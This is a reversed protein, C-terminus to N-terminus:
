KLVMPYNILLSSIFDRCMNNTCDLRNIIHVIYDICTASHLRYLQWQLSAFVSTEEFVNIKFSRRTTLVIIVACQLGCPYCIIYSWKQFFMNKLTIYLHQKLLLTSNDRFCFLCSSISEKNKLPVEVVFLFM